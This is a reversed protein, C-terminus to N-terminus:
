SYTLDGSPTKPFDRVHKIMLVRKQFVIGGPDNKRRLKETLGSLSNLRLGRKRAEKWVTKGTYDEM